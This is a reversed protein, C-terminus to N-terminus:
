RQNRTLYHQFSLTIGINRQTNKMKYFSTQQANYKDVETPISIPLLSCEAKLACLDNKFFGSKIPKFRIGTSLTIDYDKYNVDIDKIQNASGSRSTNLLYGVSLGFKYAFPKRQDPYYYFHVPVELYYLEYRTGWILTSNSSKSEFIYRTGKSTLYFGMEMQTNPSLFRNVFIGATGNYDKGYYLDDFFGFYDYYKQITTVSVGVELGAQFARYRNHANVLLFIHLCLIFLLLKKM